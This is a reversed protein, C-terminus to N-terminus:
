IQKLILILRLQEQVSILQEAQGKGAAGSLRLVEPALYGAPNEGAFDAKQNRHLIGGFAARKKKDM